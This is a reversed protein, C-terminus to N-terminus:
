LSLKTLLLDLRKPLDSLESFEFLMKNNKKVKETSEHSFVEIGLEWCKEIINASPQKRSVLISRASIGGYLDRVAKIKNVDHQTVEGSKCEIFVLNKGTNLVIDIENKDLTSDIKSKIRLSMKFEFARDWKSVARGILIEWWIGKFSIEFAKNSTFVEQRTGSQFQLTRGNWNLKVDKVTFSYNKLSKFKGKNYLQYCADKFWSENVQSLIFESLRIEESTFDRFENIEYNNHGSLKLFTKINIRGSIQSSRKDLIDFLHHKQDIYFIPLKLDNFVQQCAIAMIKTGGTLNLEFSEKSNDFIIGEVKTKIGEFDFPDIQYSYIEKNDLSKKLLTFQNKSDKSYLIHVVDPSKETIGMYVPLIQGGVLTIQHKM